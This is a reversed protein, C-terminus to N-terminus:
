SDTAFPACKEIAEAVQDGNFPKRLFQDVKTSPLTQQWEKQNIEYSTMLVVKMDPRSKKLERILQFGNMVPMRLDTVLVVCEKCDNTHTLAKIPETFGHVVYGQKELMKRTITLIDPDDDVVVVHKALLTM